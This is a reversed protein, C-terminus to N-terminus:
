ETYDGNKANCVRIASPYNLISRTHRTNTGDNCRQTRAKACDSTPNKATKV